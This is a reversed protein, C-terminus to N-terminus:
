LPGAASVLVMGATPGNKLKYPNVPTPKGWGFGALLLLMTGFPDLHALPNLTLRGQSQATTDGLLYATLAHSFEHFAIGVIFAICFALFVTLLLRLDGSYRDIIFFM